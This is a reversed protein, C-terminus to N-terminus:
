SPLAQCPLSPSPLLLSPAPLPTLLLLTWFFTVRWCCCQTCRGSAFVWWTEEVTRQALLVFNTVHFFFFSSAHSFVHHWTSFCFIERRPFGFAGIKKKKSVRARVRSFIIVKAEPQNEWLNRLSNLTHAIKSGYCLVLEELSLNRIKSAPHSLAEKDEKKSLSPSSPPLPLPCFASSLPYTFVPLPPSPFPCPPPLPPLTSPYSPSHLFFTLFFPPLLLLPFPLPPLPSSSSSGVM